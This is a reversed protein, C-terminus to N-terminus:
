RVRRQLQTAFHVLREVEEQGDAAPSMRIVMDESSSVGTYGHDAECAPDSCGAPELDIRRTTRWGLTLWTEVLHPAFMEPHQSADPRMRQNVVRTLTVAGLDRLPVSDVSSTASIGRAEDAVEDTHCCLLRSPTLVLVTMHRGLSDHAFTPEYHVLFEAIAEDGLSSYVSELILSPFFGRGVIAERLDSKHVSNDSSFPEM